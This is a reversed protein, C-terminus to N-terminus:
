AEPAKAAEVLRVMEEEELVFFRPACPPGASAEAGAAPEDGQRDLWRQLERKHACLRHAGDIMRYPTGCPNQSSRVLVGPVRACVHQMREVTALRAGCDRELRATLEDSARKMGKHCIRTLPVNRPRLRREVIHNIAAGVRVHFGEGRRDFDWVGSLSHTSRLVHLFTKPRGCEAAPTSNCTNQEDVCQEHAATALALSICLCATTILM